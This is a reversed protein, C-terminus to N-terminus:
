SLIKPFNELLPYTKGNVTCQKAKSSHKCCNQM